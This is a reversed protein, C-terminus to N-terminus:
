EFRSLLLCRNQELTRSLFESDRGVAFTVETRIEGRSMLTFFFPLYFFSKWVVLLMCSTSSRSSMQNVWIYWLDTFLLSLPETIRKLTQTDRSIYFSTFTIAFTCLVMEFGRGGMKNYFRNKKKVVTFFNCQFLEKKEEAEMNFHSIWSMLELFTVHM